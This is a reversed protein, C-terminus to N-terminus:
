ENKTESAFFNFIFNLVFMALTLFEDWISSRVLCAHWLDQHWLFVMGLNKDVEALWYTAYLM